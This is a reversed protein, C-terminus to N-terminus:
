NRQKKFSHTHNYLNRKHSKMAKNKWLDSPLSSVASGRRDTCGGLCTTSKSHISPRYTVERLGNGDTTTQKSSSAGAEEDYQIWKQWIM